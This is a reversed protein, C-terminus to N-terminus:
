ETMERPAACSRPLALRTEGASAHKGGQEVRQSFGILETKRSISSASARM